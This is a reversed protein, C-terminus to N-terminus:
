IDEREERGPSWEPLLNANPSVTGTVHPTAPAMRPELIAATKACSIAPLITAYVL